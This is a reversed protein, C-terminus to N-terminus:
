KAGDPVTGAPMKAGPPLHKASEDMGKQVEAKNAAEVDSADVPGLAAKSGGCGSFTMLAVVFGLACCTRLM